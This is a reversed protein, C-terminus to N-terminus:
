DSDQGEQGAAPKLGKPRYGSLMAANALAYASVPSTLLLFVLVAFLKLTVLTFGAQLVLGLIILLSGLTDTLSSAHMRTYLDPMRIAGLGGIFVFVGGAVMLALSAANILAEPSM